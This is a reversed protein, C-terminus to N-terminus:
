GTAFKELLKVLQPVHLGTLTTLREYVRLFTPAQEAMAHLADARMGSRQAGSQISIAVDLLRRMSAMVEFADLAVVPEECHALYGQLTQERLAEGGFSGHLVLTWALDFRPDSIAFGTWDIVVCSGDARVLLNDGHFDNHTPTPAVCGLHFRHAEVWGLLATLDLDSLLTLRRATKTLWRDVFRHPNKGYALHSREVFPRWPLQHLQVFLQCFSMLLQHAQAATTTTYAEGLTMGDIREMLLFPTGFPMDAAGFDYVQPVPYLAHTLQRISQFERIAKESANAGSLMRLILSEQQPQGASQYRVVFSVLESEWGSTIEAVQEIALVQRKPYLGAYYTQLQETTITM